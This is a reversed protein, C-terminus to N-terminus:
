NSELLGCFKGVTTHKVVFCYFHNCHNKLYSKDLLKGKFLIWVDVLYDQCFYIVTVMKKNTQKNQKTKRPKVCFSFVRKFSGSSCKGERQSMFWLGFWCIVFPSMILGSEEYLLSFLSTSCLSPSLAWKVWLLLLTKPLSKYWPRKKCRWVLSFHHSTRWSSKRCSPPMLLVAAQVSTTPCSLFSVQLVLFIIYNHKPIRENFKISFISTTQKNLWIVTSIIKIISYNIWFSFIFCGLFFIQMRLGSVNGLMNQKLERIYLKKPSSTKLLQKSYNRMDALFFVYGQFGSRLKSSENLTWSLKICIRLNLLDVLTLSFEKWGGRLELFPDHKALSIIYEPSTANVIM